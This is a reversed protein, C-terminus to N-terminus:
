RRLLQDIAVVFTLVTIHIYIQQLYFASLTVVDNHEAEKDMVNILLYVFLIIAFVWLFKRLISLILDCIQLGTM